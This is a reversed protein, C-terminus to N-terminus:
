GMPWLPRLVGFPISRRPGDRHHGGTHAVTRHKPRLGARSTGVRAAGRTASAAHHCATIPVRKRFAARWRAPAPRSRVRHESVPVSLRFLQVSLRFSPVSLRFSPVSLRLLPVSLRWVASPAFRNAISERRLREDIQADRAARAARMTIVATKEQASHFGMLRCNRRSERVGTHAAVQARRSRSECVGIHAAVRARRRRSQRVGVGPNAARVGAVDAGPSAQAKPGANGGGVIDPDLGLYVYRFTCAPYTARQPIRAFQM